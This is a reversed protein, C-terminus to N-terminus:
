RLEELHGKKKKRHSDAFTLQQALQLLAAVVVIM